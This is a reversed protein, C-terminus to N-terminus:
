FTLSLVLHMNKGVCRSEPEVAIKEIDVVTDDFVDGGVALEIRNLSHVIFAYWM